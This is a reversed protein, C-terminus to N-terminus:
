YISIPKRTILFYIVRWAPSGRELKFYTIVVLSIVTFFILWKWLRVRKKFILYYSLLFLLFSFIIGMFNIKIEFQELMETPLAAVYRGFTPFPLCLYSYYGGIIIPFLQLYFADFYAILGAILNAVFLSVVYLFSFISFNKVTLNM